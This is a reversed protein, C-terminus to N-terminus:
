SEGKLRGPCDVDGRRGRRRRRRRRRRVHAVAHRRRLVLVGLVCVSRRTMVGVAWRSRGRSYRHEYSHMSIHRPEGTRNSACARAPHTFPLHCHVVQHPELNVGGYRRLACWENEGVTEM